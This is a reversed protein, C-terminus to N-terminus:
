IPIRKQHSKPSTHLDQSKLSQRNPTCRDTLRLDRHTSRDTPLLDLTVQDELPTYETQHIIIHHLDLFQDGQTQDELFRGDPSQDGLLYQDDLSQDGPSQDEPLQNALLPLILTTITHDEALDQQDKGHDTRPEEPHFLLYPHNKLLYKM